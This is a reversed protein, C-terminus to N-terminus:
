RQQDHQHDASEARTFHGGSHAPHRSLDFAAGCRPCRKRARGLPIWARAYQCYVERQSAATKRAEMAREYRRKESNSMFKREM